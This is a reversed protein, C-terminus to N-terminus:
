PLDARVLLGADVLRRCYGALVQIPMRLHDAIWLLDRTGDSYNLLCLLADVERRHAEPMGADGVQPYLGRKGLQPECHPETRAYCANAELADIVQLCVDLTEGLSKESVFDLNDLSTHYEKFREYPTRTLGGVPLDFGPSCYQREDSGRPHFDILDYRYGSNRLVHEVIRDIVATGRRSRKYTLGGRDGCCTLVLGAHTHAKLHDGHQSLYAIAGITEPVFLFRYSFRRRRERLVKALYTAVVVGSLSDNAMSPHCVYSSIVVEAKELGPLVCDAYTLSGAKHSAEISVEYTGERLTDLVRHPLCFGWYDRYYSTVYPIAEPLDPRTHLHPRLESLSLRRRLGASYNVVHLNHAKFDALVGGTPDKLTAGTIV